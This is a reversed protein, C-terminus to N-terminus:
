LRGERMAALTSARAVFARAFRRRDERSRARVFGDVDESIARACMAILTATSWGSSQVHSWRDAVVGCRDAGRAPRQQKGPM